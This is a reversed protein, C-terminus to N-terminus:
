FFRITTLNFQNKIIDIKGEEEESNITFNNEKLAQEIKQIRSSLSPHFIDFSSELNAQQIALFFRRGGRLESETSNAIAFDDAKAERWRSFLVFSALGVSLALGVAPFFSLCCMGFIAAALQCIFHVCPVTFNDNNKIHSIEHKIIFACADPDIELWDKPLIITAPRQLFFNTGIARPSVPQSVTPEKEQLQLDERIKQDRLLPSINPLRTSIRQDTTSQQTHPITQVLCLYAPVTPITCCGSLLSM